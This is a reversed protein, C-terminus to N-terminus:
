STANSNTAEGTEPTCSLEVVVRRNQDHHVGDATLVSLQREGWGTINGIEFGDQELKAAVYKARKRSINVNASDSGITDSYGSVNAVCTREGQFSTLGPVIGAIQKDIEEGKAVALPFLVTARHVDGIVTPAVIEEAEESMSLQMTLTEQQKQVAELSSALNGLSSLIADGQDSSLAANGASANSGGANIKKIEDLTETQLEVIVNRTESQQTQLAKRLEGFGYYGAGIIAAASFVSAFVVAISSGSKESM